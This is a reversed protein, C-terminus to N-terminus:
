ECLDYSAAFDEPTLLHYVAGNPKVTEILLDGTRGIVTAYQTEVNAPSTLVAVRHRTPRRVCSRWELGEPARSHIHISM